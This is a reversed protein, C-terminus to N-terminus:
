TSAKSKIVVTGCPTLFVLRTVLFWDLYSCRTVLFMDLNCYTRDCPGLYSTIPKTTLLM